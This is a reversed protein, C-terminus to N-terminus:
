STALLFGHRQTPNVEGRTTTTRGGDLMTMCEGPRLSRVYVVVHRPWLSRPLSGFIPGREVRPMEERHMHNHFTHTKRPTIPRSNIGDATSQM